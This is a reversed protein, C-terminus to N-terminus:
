CCFMPGGADVEVISLGYCMYVAVKTSGSCFISIFLM